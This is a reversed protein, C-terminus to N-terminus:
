IMSEMELTSTGVDEAVANQRRELSFGRSSDSIQVDSSVAGVRIIGGSM